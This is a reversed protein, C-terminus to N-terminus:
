AAKTHGGGGYVAAMAAVDLDPRNTRLSARVLDGDQTVVCAYRVGQISNLM